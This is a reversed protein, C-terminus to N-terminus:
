LEIGEVSIAVNASVQGAILRVKGLRENRFRVDRRDVSRDHRDAVRQAM